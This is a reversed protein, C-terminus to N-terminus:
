APETSPTHMVCGFSEHVKLIAAYGEADKAFCLTLPIRPKSDNGEAHLCDGWDEAFDQREAWFPAKQGSPNRSFYVCSACDKM